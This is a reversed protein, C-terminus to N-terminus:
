YLQGVETLFKRCSGSLRTKNQQLCGLVAMDGQGFHKSCMKRSDGGCARDGRQRVDDQAYAPASAIAASISLLTVAALLKLRTRSVPAEPNKSTWLVSVRPQAGRTAKIMADWM